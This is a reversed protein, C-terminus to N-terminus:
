TLCQTQTLGAVQYLWELTKRMPWIIGRETFDPLFWDDTAPRLPLLTSPKWKWANRALSIITNAAWRDRILWRVTAHRDLYTAEERLVNRYGAIFDNLVDGIFLHAPPWEVYGYVLGSLEIMLEGVNDELKGQEQALRTIAKRVGAPTSGRTTVSAHKEPLVGAVRYAFRIVEGQTPFGSVNGM